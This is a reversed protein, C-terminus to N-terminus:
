DGGLGSDTSGSDTGGDDTGGGSDTTTGGDGSSSSSSSGITQNQGPPCLKGSCDGILAPHSEPSSCALSLM